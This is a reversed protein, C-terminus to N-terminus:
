MSAKKLMAVVEGATKQAAALDNEKVGSAAKKCAELLAAKHTADATDPVAGDGMDKCPNAEKADFGAGKPGILCNVAHQLHQHVAAIDKGAAAYGAHQEATAAEKAADAAKAALPGTLSLAAGAIFAVAWGAISRDRMIM